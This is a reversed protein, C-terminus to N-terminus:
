TRRTWRSCADHAIRDFLSASFSPFSRNEIGLAPLVGNRSGMYESVTAETLAFQEIRGIHDYGVHPIGLLDVQASWHSDNWDPRDPLRSIFRRFSEVIDAASSPPLPFLDESHMLVFRPNRVLVKSVWASWIRRVPERVVTRTFTFWEDSDLIREVETASRDQLRHAAGWLSGDHM